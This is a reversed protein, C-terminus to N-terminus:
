GGIRIGAYVTFGATGYGRVFEYKEDLINDLRVLAEVGGAIRISAAANLILFPELRVRRATWDSFDLDDRAGLCVAELALRAGGAAVRLGASFKDRPRRLLDLGNDLDRARTRTYSAEASLWALPAARVELEYGRTEARGINSYGQAYDFQILNRFSNSFACFSAALRGGFFEQEAGLDWGLSREPNLGANGVPGWATGPAYLQYLSPAKFGTGITGRIKTGTGPVLVAPALRWTLATGAVGHRDLRAGATAFFVNGARVRDQVYFGAAGSSATPFSSEYVGWSSRSVYESEGTEGELEVGATLTHFPSLFLNHQWDLKTRAGAFSGEESDLPHAEDEANRYDREHRVASLSLIQEWRNELLRARFTGRLLLSDYDQRYNPDDGYAGGFNDLDMRNSGYSAGLEAEMNERVAWSLRGSLALSRCGDNETNGPYSAGAASFGDTKMWSSSLDYRFAGREGGLGLGASLTGYSGAQGSLRFRPPGGGRRTIVHIVGGMAESGYLTSQPGRLIEIREVDELRLHALDFMRTPSVPDNMEVGDVMVLVHEPNSGRIFVSAAAGPPGSQQLSLGLVDQLAELVTMRNMAELRERGLVTVSSATEREPTELRAATVVVVHAPPKLKPEQAAEEAGAAPCLYLLPFLLLLCAARSPWSFSPNRRSSDSM